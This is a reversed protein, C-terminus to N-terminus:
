DDPEFFRASTPPGPSPPAPSSDGSAAPFEAADPHGTETPRSPEFSPSSTARRGGALLSAGIASVAGFVGLIIVLWLPVGKPRSRDRGLDPAVAPTESATPLPSATPSSVAGTPPHPPGAAERLQAETLYSCSTTTWRGQADVNMAVAVREHQPFLVACSSLSNTGVEAWLDVTPGLAGKYVAVVQFTQTTGNASVTEDVVRGVFARDAQRVIEAPTRAACDCARCPSASVVIGGGVTALILLARVASM